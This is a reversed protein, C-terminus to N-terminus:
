LKEGNAFVENIVVRNNEEISLSFCNEAKDDGVYLNELNKGGIGADYEDEVMGQKHDSGMVVILNQGVYEKGGINFRPRSVIIRGDSRLELQVAYKSISENEDLGDILLLKFKELEPSDDPRGLLAPKGVELTFSDKIEDSTTIEPTTAGDGAMGPNYEKKGCKKM